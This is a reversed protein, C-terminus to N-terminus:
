LPVHPTLSFSLSCLSLDTATHVLLLLAFSFSRLPARSADSDTAAPTIDPDNAALGGGREEDTRVEPIFWGGLNVGRITTEADIHFSSVEELGEEKTSAIVSIGDDADDNNVSRPHDPDEQLQREVHKLHVIKEGVPRGSNFVSSIWRLFRTTSSHEPIAVTYLMYQQTTSKIHDPHVKHYLKRAAPADDNGAYYVDDYAGDDGADAAAAPPPTPPTTPAHKGKSSVPAPTPERRGMSGEGGPTYGTSLQSNAATTSYEAEQLWQNKQCVKLHIHGVSRSHLGVSGASSSAGVGTAVCESTYYRGVSTCNSGGPLDPSTSSKQDDATSTSSDTYLVAAFRSAGFRDTSDVNVDGKKDVRIYKGTLSRLMFCEGSTEVEFTSGRKWAITQDLILSSEDEHVRVFLKNSNSRFQIRDGTMMLLVPFRESDKLPLALVLVAVFLFALAITIGLFVAKHCCLRFRDVPRLPPPLSSDSKTDDHVVLNSQENVKDPGYDIQMSFSM